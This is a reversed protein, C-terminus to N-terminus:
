EQALSDWSKKGPEGDELLMEAASHYARITSVGSLKNMASVETCDEESRGTIKILFAVAIKDKAAEAERSGPGPGATNLKAALNPRTM